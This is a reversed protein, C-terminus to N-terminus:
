EERRWSFVLKESPGVTEELPRPGVFRVHFDAGALVDSGFMSDQAHFLRRSSELNFEKLCSYVDLGHDNVAFVYMLDPVDAVLEVFRGLAKEYKRQPARALKM